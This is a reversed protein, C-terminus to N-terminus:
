GDKVAPIRTRWIESSGPPASELMLDGTGDSRLFYRYGNTPSTWELRKESTNISFTLEEVVPGRFWPETGIATPPPSLGVLVSVYKDTVNVTQFIWFTGDASDGAWKGILGNLFSRDPLSGEWTRANKPWLIDLGTAYRTKQCRDRFDVSSATLFQDICEVYRRTFRGGSASTHGSLGAPRDILLLPLGRERGVASLRMGRPPDGAEWTDSAFLFMVIRVTPSAQEFLSVLEDDQRQISDSNIRYSTAPATAIVGHLGHLRVAAEIALWGGRSQGAVVIRKYGINQLSRIQAQLFDLIQGDYENRDFDSPREITLLDWAYRESLLRLYNQPHPDSQITENGRGGLFIM